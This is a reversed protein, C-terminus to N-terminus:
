ASEQAEYAEAVREAFFPRLEPEQTVDERSSWMAHFPGEPSDWVVHVRGHHLIPKGMYWGAVFPEDYPKWEVRLVDPDIKRLVSKPV